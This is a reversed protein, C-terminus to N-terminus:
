QLHTNGTARRIVSSGLALALKGDADQYFIIPVPGQQTIAVTFGIIPRFVKDSSLANRTEIEWGNGEIM